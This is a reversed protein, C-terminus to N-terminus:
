LEIVRKVDKFFEPEQEAISPEVFPEADMFRTGYELYASYNTHPAVVGVYRYNRSDDGNIKADITKKTWGKSYGKLFAEGKQAKRKMRNELKSTHKNVCERMLPKRDKLLDKLEKIGNFSISMCSFLLIM